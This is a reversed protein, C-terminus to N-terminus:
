VFESTDHPPNKVLLPVSLIPPPVRVVAAVVPTMVILEPPIRLRLLLPRRTVMRVIVLALPTTFKLPPVRWAVPLLVLRMSAPILTFTRVLPAMTLREPFLTPILAFMVLPYVFVIM